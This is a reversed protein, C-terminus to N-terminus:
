GAHNRENMWQEHETLHFDKFFKKKVLYFAQYFNKQKIIKEREHYKWYKFLRLYVVTRLISFKQNSNHKKRDKLKDTLACVFIIFLHSVVNNERHNKMIFFFFLSFFVLRDRYAYYEHLINLCIFVFYGFFIMYICSIIFFHFQM